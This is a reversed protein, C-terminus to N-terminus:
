PRPKRAAACHRDYRALARRAGSKCRQIIASVDAHHNASITGGELLAIVGYLINLDCRAIAAQEIHDVKM